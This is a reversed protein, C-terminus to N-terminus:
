GTRACILRPSANCHPTLRGSLPAASRSGRDRRTGFCLISGAKRECGRISAASSNPQSAPRSPTLPKRARRLSIPLRSRSSEPRTPAGSNLPPVLGGGFEAVETFTHEEGGQNVIPLTVTTPVHINSTSFRWSPVQQQRQFMAQFAEFSLGGNRNVCTGPGLVANFSDPDCNDLMLISRGTQVAASAGTDAAGAATPAAPSPTDACALVFCIPLLAGCITIRPGM